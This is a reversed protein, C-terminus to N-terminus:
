KRTTENSKTTTKNKCKDPLNHAQTAEPAEIKGQAQINEYTSAHMLEHTNVLKRPFFLHMYIYTGTNTHTHTNTHTNTNTNTHTHTRAHAHAHAHAHTRTPTQTFTHMDIIQNM